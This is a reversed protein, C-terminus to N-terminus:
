SFGASFPEKVLVTWPDISLRKEVLGSVVAGGFTCM